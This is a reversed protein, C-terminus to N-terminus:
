LKNELKNNQAPINNIVVNPKITRSNNQKEKEEEKEYVNAVMKGEITEEPNFKLINDILWFNIANLILPIIILVVILKLKASGSFPSM